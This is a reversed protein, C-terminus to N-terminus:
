EYEGEAKVSWINDKTQINNIVNDVAAIAALMYYDTSDYLFMGNRGLLFLNGFRDTFNRIIGIENYAGCYTPYAKSIWLVTHDLVHKRDIMGIEIMERVGLSVLQEESMKWLADGENCFYELGVWVTGPDKLMYPSWNNYINLRALHVGKEQVYIWNDPIFGHPTEIATDNKIKLGSLLVGVVIISRYRLGSAIQKVHQPVEARFSGILEDVPMTSFCYDCQQTAIVGTEKNQVAVESIKNGECSIGTVRHHLHIKGGRELIMRAVKEWLQGAGLKPYLFRDYFGSQMNKQKGPILNQFMRFVIEATSLDKVRKAGWDPNIESCSFGWVKETYDKFFTRYLERGFRNIFYNEISTINKARFLRDNTYSLIIKAIRILGLNSVTDRDLSVPYNFLKGLFLIRTFRRVLLLEEASEIPLSHSHAPDTSPNTSTGFQQEQVPLISKWWETVIDSKSYFRHPGIDMRNGKYLVTKSTGGIDGTQEYVVPTIDTKKLLEYAATLGAPGAGIIIGQRKKV